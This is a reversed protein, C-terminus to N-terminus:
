SRQQLWRAEKKVVFMGRTDRTFFLPFADFWFKKGCKPCPVEFNTQFEIKFNEGCSCEVNARILKVEVKDM